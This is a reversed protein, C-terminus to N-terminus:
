PQSGNMSWAVAQSQLGLRDDSAALCRMSAPSPRSRNTVFQMALCVGHNTVSLKESGAQGPYISKITQVAQM